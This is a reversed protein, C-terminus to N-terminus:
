SKKIQKELLAIGGDQMYKMSEIKQLAKYGTFLAVLVFVHFAISLWDQVLIFILGDLLYITMGVLFAWKEEKVAFYGFLAFMCAIILEIFLAALRITDSANYVLGDILQTIGLGVVFSVNGEFYGVLTNFASFAAIWYFWKASKNVKVSLENLEAQNNNVTSIEDM